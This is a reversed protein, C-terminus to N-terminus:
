GAQRSGEPSVAVLRHDGLVPRVGCDPHLWRRLRIDDDEEVATGCAQWECGDQVTGLPCGRVVM